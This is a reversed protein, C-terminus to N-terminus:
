DIEMMYRTAVRRFGLLRTVPDWGNRVGWAGIMKCRLTAAIERLDSVIDEARSLTDEGVVGYLFLELGRPHSVIQTLVLGSGTSWAAIQETGFERLVQETTTGDWFQEVLEDILAHHEPGLRNLYRLVKLTM